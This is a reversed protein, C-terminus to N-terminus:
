ECGGNRIDNKIMGRTNSNVHLGNYTNSYFFDAAASGSTRKLYCSGLGDFLLVRLKSWGLDAYSGYDSDQNSAGECKVVNGGIYISEGGKLNITDAFLFSSSLLSMLIIKKM